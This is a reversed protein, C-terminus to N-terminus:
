IIFVYILCGALGIIWTIIFASLDAKRKHLKIIAFIMVALWALMILYGWPVFFFDEEYDKSGPSSEPFVLAWGLLCIYSGITGQLLGLLAIAIRRLTKHM